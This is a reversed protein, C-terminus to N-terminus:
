KGAITIDDFEVVGAWSTVVGPQERYLDNLRASVVEVLDAVLGKKDTCRLPPVGTRYVGMTPEYDQVAHLFAILDDIRVKKQTRVVSSAGKVPAAPPPTQAVQEAQRELDARQQELRARLQATKAGQAQAARKAAEARLEEEQRRTAEEAERLLRAENAKYDALLRKAHAELRDIQAGVEHELQDVGKVAEKAAALAKKQHDIATDLPGRIPQLALKWQARVNRIAALKADIELYGEPTDISTVREFQGPALTNLLQLGKTRTAVFQQPPPTPVPAQVAPMTGLRKAM